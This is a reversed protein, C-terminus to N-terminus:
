TFRQRMKTTASVTRTTWDSADDKTGVHNLTRKHHHRPLSEQSIRQSPRQALGSGNRITSGDALYLFPSSPPPWSWANSCIRHLFLIHQISGLMPAGSPNFPCTTTARYHWGSPYLTSAPSERQSFRVWDCQVKTVTPIHQTLHTWITLHPPSQDTNPIHSPPLSPPFPPLGQTKASDHCVRRRSM